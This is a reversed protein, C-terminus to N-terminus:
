ESRSPRLPVPYLANRMSENATSLALCCLPSRVFQVRQSPRRSLTLITRRSPAVCDTATDVSSVSALSHVSVDRRLHPRRAGRARDCANRACRRSLSTNPPIRRVVTSPSLVCNTDFTWKTLSQTRRMPTVADDFPNRRVTVLCRPCCRPRSTYCGYTRYVVLRVYGLTRKNM